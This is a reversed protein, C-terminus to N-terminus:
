SDIWQSVDDKRYLFCLSNEWNINMRKNLIDNNAELKKRYIKKREIREFKKHFDKFNWNLQITVEEKGIEGTFIWKLYKGQLKGFFKDCKKSIKVWESKAARM